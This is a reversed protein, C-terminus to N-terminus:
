EYVSCGEPVLFPCAGEDAERMRLLVHPFYTGEKLVADVYRDLFSDSTISLAKKLRIADYPYLFLNLNRCCRNYCALRGHCRFHFTDSEKLRRGEMQDLENYDIDLYKM